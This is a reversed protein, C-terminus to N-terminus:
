FRPPDMCDYRYGRHLSSGYFGGYLSGGYFNNIFGPGYYFGQNPQDNPIIPAPKALLAYCSATEARAAELDATTVAQIKAQQAPSLDAYRRNIFETRRTGYDRAVQLIAVLSRGLENPDLPAAVLAAEYATLHKDYDLRLQDFALFLLDGRAAFDARTAPSLELYDALSSKVCEPDRHSSYAVDIVTIPREPSPPPTFWYECPAFYTIAIVKQNVVLADLQALQAPSLLKRNATVAEAIHAIGQRRIATLEAIRLGFAQPDLVPRTEEEELERRVEYAREWHQSLWVGYRNNNTEIATWQAPTIYPLLETQAPLLSAFVFLALGLGWGKRKSNRAFPM